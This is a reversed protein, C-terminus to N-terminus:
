RLADSVTQVRETLLYDRVLQFGSLEFKLRCVKYNRELQRVRLLFPFENPVRAFDISHDVHVVFSVVVEAAAWVPGVVHLRQLFTSRFEARQELVKWAVARRNLTGAATGLAVVGGVVVGALAGAADTSGLRRSSPTLQLGLSFCHM